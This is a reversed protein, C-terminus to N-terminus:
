LRQVAEALERTKERVEQLAVAKAAEDPRRNEEAAMLAASRLFAALTMGGAKAAESIRMFEDVTLRLSYVVGANKGAKAKVPVLGEIEAPTDKLAEM